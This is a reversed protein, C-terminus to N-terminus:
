FIGYREYAELPQLGDAVAVRIESETAVIAEARELVEDRLEAPIVIVGDADAVVYDGTRVTVGGIEVEHGWELLEWRPVCDQPNRYRCYVPLGSELVMATDRSGGDVIVGACGRAILSTASLDGFHASDDENTKYVAVSHAPVSQLWELMRRMSAEYPVDERPRGEAVFAPGALRMGPALPALTSPLTQRHRGLEDLVDAVISTYVAMFRRSIAPLGNTTMSM